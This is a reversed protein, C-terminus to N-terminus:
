VGLLVSLPCQSSATDTLLSVVATCRQKTPELSLSSTFLYVCSSVASLFSCRACAPFSCKGGCWGWGVRLRLEAAAPRGEGRRGARPLRLGPGRGAGEMAGAAPEEAPRRPEAPRPRQEASPAARSPEAGTVGPYGRGRGRWRRRTESELEGCPGGRAGPGFVGLPPAPCWCRPLGKCRGRGGDGGGERARGRTGGGRAGM